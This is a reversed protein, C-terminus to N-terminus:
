IVLAYFTIKYVGYMYIFHLCRYKINIVCEFMACSLIKTWKLKGSPESKPKNATKLQTVSHVRDYVTYFLVM